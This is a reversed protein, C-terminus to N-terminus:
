RRGGLPQLEGTPPAFDPPPPQLREIEGRLMAIAAAGDLVALRTRYDRVEGHGLMILEGRAEALPRGGLHNTTPEIGLVYLGSQLCQWQTLCPLATRDFDLRVGFGGAGLAPNLLAACAMGDPGAVVDHEYVQERFDPDPPGQIRWGVGQAHLDRHV